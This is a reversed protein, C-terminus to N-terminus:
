TASIDTGQPQMSDKAIGSRMTRSSPVTSSTKPSAKRLPGQGTGVWLSSEVSSRLFNCRRPLTPCASHSNTFAWARHCTRRSCRRRTQGVQM